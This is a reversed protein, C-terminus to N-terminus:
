HPWIDDENDNEDLILITVWPCQEELHQQYSQLYSFRMEHLMVMAHTNIKAASRMWVNRNLSEEWGMSMICDTVPIPNQLSSVVLPTRGADRVDHLVQTYMQIDTVRHVSMQENRKREEVTEKEKRQSVRDVQARIEAQTSFPNVFFGDELNFLNNCFLPKLVQGEAHNFQGEGHMMGM